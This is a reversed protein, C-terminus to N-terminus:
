KKEATIGQERLVSVQQSVTNLRSDVSTVAVSVTSVQSSLVSVQQSVVSIAQSLADDKAVRAATEVSIANSLSDDKAVRAVTEVSLANSVVSVANAMLNAIDQATTQLTSGGQVIPVKETGSLPTAAASLASIKTDAM